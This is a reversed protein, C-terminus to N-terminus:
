AEETKVLKEMEGEMMKAVPIGTWRSVVKAIDEESVEEKLIPNQRQLNALKKQEAKIKKELEPIKGYRIEAVQSLEGQQEM